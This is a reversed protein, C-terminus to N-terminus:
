SYDLLHAYGFINVKNAVSAFAKVILGNQLVLGPSVLLTENPNIDVKINDDVDASGWELTLTVPATNTNCAWLWIEHFSTTGAVSTHVTTGATGTQVVKVGTGNAAGTLCIKSIVAM